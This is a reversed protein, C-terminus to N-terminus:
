LLRSKDGSAFGALPGSINRGFAIAKFLEGMEAPSVLKQLQNALPLYEGANEAPIRALIGTIGCNILFHAQTNYGLLTLGDKAAMDAIASFDVHATIDQLGPLYFPDDHAFHRYHCMLTGRSRQPHYYERRGFGYDILLIAGKQLIDALGHIFYQASLNIESIYGAGESREEILPNLERAAAFLEGEELPRERWQFENDDCIIGREFLNDDRWAVLHVPMADLVENALILGNFEAPLRELWLVRPLLHAAHEELMRRQRQRLEASVELIFYHAPLNGLRELELLLDLTLKATGAGFELIDAEENILGLVQAAQRALTRGFLSSIEPATVFDGAQGFKEAGASYYGMGPAYLALRMYREFSIWGGAAAIEAQILRKVAQSHELAAHSPEPLPTLTRM